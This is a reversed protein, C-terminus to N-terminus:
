KYLPRYRPNEEKSLSKVESLKIKQVVNSEMKIMVYNKNDSDKSYDMEVIIGRIYEDDVTKVIDLLESQEFIDQQSNAPLFTYKIVDDIPFSMMIGNNQYLSLQNDSEGAYQGEYTKGNRLHYVRNIGSLMKKPRREAKISEIDKWSLVYVNPTLELYKINAGYELVKVSKVISDGLHEKPLYKIDNMVLNFNEGSGELADNKEAWIKWLEPLCSVAVQRSEVSVRSKSVWILANDTHFTIKDIGDQQQIYGNLVSGNKLTVKQVIVAESLQSVAFALLLFILRKM